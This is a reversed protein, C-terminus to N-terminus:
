ILAFFPFGFCPEDEQIGLGAFLGTKIGNLRKGEAIVPVQQGGHVAVLRFAEAPM